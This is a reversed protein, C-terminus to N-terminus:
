IQNRERHKELSRQANVAELSLLVARNAAQAAFDLAYEAWLLKEDADSGAQTLNRRLTAMVEEMGRCADLLYRASGAQSCRLLKATQHKKVTYARLLQRYERREAASPGAEALHIGRHIGSVERDMERLRVSLVSRAM